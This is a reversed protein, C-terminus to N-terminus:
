YLVCLLQHPQKWQASFVCVCVCVYMYMCIVCWVVGCWLYVCLLLWQFATDLSLCVCVCVFLHVFIHVYRCAGFQCHTVSVSIITRSMPAPYQYRRLYLHATLMSRCPGVVAERILIWKMLPSSCCTKPIPHTTRSSRNSSSIPQM